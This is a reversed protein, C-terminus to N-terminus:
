SSTCQLLCCLVIESPPPAGESGHVHSLSYLSLNNHDFFGPPWIGLAKEPRASQEATERERFILPPRPRRTWFASDVPPQAPYGTYCVYFVTKEPGQSRYSLCHVHSVAGAPGLESDGPVRRVLESLDKSTSPIQFPQDTGQIGVTAQPRWLTWGQRSGEDRGAPIGEQLDRPWPWSDGQHM